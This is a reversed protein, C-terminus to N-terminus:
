ERRLSRIANVIGKSGLILWIGIVIKLGAIIIWSNLSDQGSAAFKPNFVVFEIIASLSIMLLYLGAVSLAVSHFNEVPVKSKTDEPEPKFVSNALKPALFWLIIGFIVFLIPPLIANIFNAKQYEQMENSYFLYAFINECQYFIQMVFYIALLKFCLKAIDNKTMM